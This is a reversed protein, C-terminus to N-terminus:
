RVWVMKSKIIDWRGNVKEILIVNGHGCLGGCVFEYYMIGKDKSPNFFIKSLRVKGIICANSDSKNDSLMKIKSTCLTFDRSLYKTQVAGITDCISPSFDAVEQILSRLQMAYDSTDKQLGSMQNFKRVSTDLYVICFRGTDDFITNQLRVVERNIRITDLPAKAYEKFVREEDTGLYFNYFSHEVLENLIESYAKLEDNNSECNCKKYTPKCAATTM